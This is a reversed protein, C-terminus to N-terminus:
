GIGPRASPTAAGGAHRAETRSVEAERIRWHGDPDEAWRAQVVVLTPGVLKTKFVHHAGIRAHAVLDFTEFDTQLLRDLLDPPSLAVGPSLDERAAPDQGIVRRAHARVAAEVGTV